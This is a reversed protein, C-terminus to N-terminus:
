HDNGLGEDAWHSLAAGWLAVCCWESECVMNVEADLHMEHGSKDQYTSGIFLEPCRWVLKGNWDLHILLLLLNSAFTYCCVTYSACLLSPKWPCVEARNPPKLLSICCLSMLSSPSNGLAAGTTNAQGTPCSPTILDPPLQCSSPQAWGQLGPSGSNQWCATGTLWQQHSLPSCEQCQLQALHESSLHWTVGHLVRECASPGKCM